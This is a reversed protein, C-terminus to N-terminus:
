KLCPTECGLRALNLAANTDRHHEAGCASCVWQRIGLGDRGYPGSISGCVPCTRTTNAGEVERYAVGAHACTYRLFGRLMAWGADLVSKAMPAKALRSASVNGVTIRSSWTVLRRSFQHLADKRRTAIKAHITRVQCKRGARQAAALKPELDRHFGAQELHPGDSCTAVFKLGRDVGIDAEGALPVPEVECVIICYWQGRADQPVNGAKIKGEIPRHRWLRFRQGRM